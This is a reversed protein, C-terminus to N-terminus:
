LKAVLCQFTFSIACVSLEKLLYKCLIYLENKLFQVMLSIKADVTVYIYIYIITTYM